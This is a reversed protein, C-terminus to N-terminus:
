RKRRPGRRKPQDDALQFDIRRSAMDVRAVVVDLRDGLSFRTGTREGILSQSAADFRFYDSGLSTVHVLGDIQLEPIQVFVGFNTVGSIIAPYEQGLRSEM